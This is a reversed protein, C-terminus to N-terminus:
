EGNGGVTNLIKKLASAAADFAENNDKYTMGKLSEGEAELASLGVFKSLHPELTLVSGGQAFYQPLIEPFHGIGKGCPVINGAADSDKIHMYEVYPHLIEWAHLTDVGCQVFNAPDFVARIDPFERLIELCTEPTEGYIHKENEHCLLVGKPTHECFARLRAFTLARNEESSKGPEPYFSFMRVHTCGFIDAYEMVRDFVKLHEEFSSGPKMKGLPSGMSFVRIGADDLRAKVELAEEKSLDPFSKGGVGRIELLSIGNRQMAAIQGSLEPSAEDAFACLRYKAMM